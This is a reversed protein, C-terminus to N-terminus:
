TWQSVQVELIRLNKRDQLRRPVTQWQRCNGGQLGRDDGPQCRDGQPRATSATAAAIPKLAEAAQEATQIDAKGAAHLTVATTLMIFFAVLNSIGM